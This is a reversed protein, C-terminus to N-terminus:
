NMVSNIWSYVKRHSSLLSSFENDSMESRCLRGRTHRCTPCEPTAERDGRLDNESASDWSSSLEPTEQRIESRGEGEATQLHPLQIESLNSLIVCNFFFM